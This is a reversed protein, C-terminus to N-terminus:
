ESRNRSAHGRSENAHEGSKRLRPSRPAATTARVVLHTQILTHAIGADVVPKAHRALLLDVAMRGALEMPMAVTTLPPACMAAYLIDDCGVVSVDDPVRIALAALRSQVGLAMLDNFAIIATAGSALALDTGQIGGAFKPELPGHEILEIAHERAAARLGRGRERNSWASRPGGLYAFRRHGLAALHDIVQRMGHAADMLVAPVDPLRRNILVLASLRALESIQADSSFPACLIVGDVQKAMTHVLNQEAAPDEGSDGLLLAYGAQQARAQVGRVVSPYFPNDLDPVVIGLNGTQGTILSRAARNPHYALAKAAKLVRHRTTERVLQPRTLARSVTAVSVRARRAVDHITIAV